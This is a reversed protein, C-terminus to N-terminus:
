PEWCSRSWISRRSGIPPGGIMAYSVSCGIVVAIAHSVVNTLTKAFSRKIFLAEGFQSAVAIGVGIAPAILVGAALYIATALSLHFQRHPLQIVLGTREQMQAYAFLIAPVVILWPSAHQVPFKWWSAVTLVIAIITLTTLVPAVGIRIFFSRGGHRMRAFQAQNVRGSSDTVSSEAQM